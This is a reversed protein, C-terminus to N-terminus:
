RAAARKSAPASSGSSAPPAPVKAVARGWAAPPIGVLRKFARAFAAESEYGVRVAIDPISRAPECLLQRALHIRWTALYHMPAEGLLETFREALASRSTGAEHALQEVTWHRAPEAHMLRLAKGVHPDQVGALWGTQGPPLQQMYERVINLFMIETLRGLMAANGPRSSVAEHITYGLTTNLWTGSSHRVNAPKEGSPGIAEVTAQGNRSRVLLMTPLAGVLPAFRQDCGLYGCLFRSKRGGGGGYSLQSLQDGSGTPLVTNIPVSSVGPASRMIHPHSHPYIIVDGSHLQVSPHGATDVWCEGEVLVHFLALCEANPLVSALSASDPSELAWPASLEATFFLAGSLRVVRLVDSLVDM